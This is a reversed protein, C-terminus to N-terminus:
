RGATVRLGSHFESHQLLTPASWQAELAFFGQRNAAVLYRDNSLVQFTLLNEGYFAAMAAAGTTVGLRFCYVGPLLPCGKLRWRLEYEGPALKDLKLESESNHTALYLLDTTHVGIGFTPLILEQSISLQVLVTFDAGHKVEETEKGASDIIVLKQLEVGNEHLRGSLPVKKKVDKIKADSRSYFLDCVKQPGDDIVVHGHDLLIARTCLREVQRINHSVLLVTKEQRKIMEEMRDFCKRQFALDGVALVEDVILIESDVSTAISFGLRVAM